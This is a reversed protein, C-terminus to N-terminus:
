TYQTIHMMNHTDHTNHRNHAIHTNQADLADLTNHTNHTNGEWVPRKARHKICEVIPTSNNQNPDQENVNAGNATVCFNFVLSNLELPYRRSAGSIRRPHFSFILMSLVTISFMLSNAVVVATLREDCM